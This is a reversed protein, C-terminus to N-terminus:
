LYFIVRERLHSSWAFRQVGMVANRPSTFACCNASNFASFKSSRIQVVSNGGKTLHLM